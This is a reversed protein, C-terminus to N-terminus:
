GHVRVRTVSHPAAYAVPRQVDKLLGPIVMMGVALYVALGAWALGFRWRDLPGCQFYASNAHKWGYIMRPVSMLALVWVMPNNHFILLGIVVCPLLLKPSFLPVLWGGDLPPSPALNILNIFCGAFALVAWLKAGTILFVLGCLTTAITGAVPGMIGIYASKVANGFGKGWVLGGLLPVFVMFGVHGGVRRIAWAHGCEHIAILLAFGIGFAWGYRWSWAWMMLFLSGGAVLLKLIWAFKLFILLFKLKALIALIAAWFKAVAAGAAGLAGAVGKKKGKRAGPAAQGAAPPPAPAASVVPPVTAAAEAGLLDRRIQDDVPSM